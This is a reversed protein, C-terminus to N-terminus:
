NSRANLESIIRLRESEPIQALATAFDDFPIQDPSTATAIEDALSEADRVRRRLDQPEISEFSAQQRTESSASLPTQQQVLAENIADSMSARIEAKLEEALEDFAATLEIGSSRNVRIPRPAPKPKKLEALIQSDISSAQNLESVITARFSSLETATKVSVGVAIASILGLGVLAYELKM